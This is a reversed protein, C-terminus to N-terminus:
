SLIPLAPALSTGGATRVTIKQKREARGQSMSDDHRDHRFM